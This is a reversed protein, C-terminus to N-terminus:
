TRSIHCIIIGSHFKQKNLIIGNAGTLFLGEKFEENPQLYLNICLAGKEENKAVLPGPVVLLVNIDIFSHVPSESVVEDGRSFNNVYWSLERWKLKILWPYKDMETNGLGNFPVVIEFPSWVGVDVDGLYELFGTDKNIQAPGLKPNWRDDLFANGTAFQWGALERIKKKMGASRWFSKIVKDGTKAAKIDEDDNTEPIVSMIPDNKILDSVQRRWKPMIKNDVNLLRGRVQRIQQLRHASDNFFTYQKGALFALCLLWRKDFPERYELGADLFDKMMTWDSDKEKPGSSKKLKAVNKNLRM